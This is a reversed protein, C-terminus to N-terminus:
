DSAAPAAKASDRATTSSAEPRRLARYCASGREIRGRAVRVAGIAVLRDAFVNLGTTDVDAVV